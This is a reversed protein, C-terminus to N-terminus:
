KKSKIKGTWKKYGGKLMYLDTYGNKRLMRAARYSAIGNADCLYIPQDKRLGQFRQKFMTIPINRAGNIHGYDYDVKERVDVVQAKRLGKHFDNQDLEKVARKNLIQQVVMYGIIIVLIIIAIYLSISM